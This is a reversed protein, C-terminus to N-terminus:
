RRLMCGSTPNNPTPNRASSATSNPGGNPPTRAPKPAPPTASGSTPPRPTATATSGPTSSSGPPPSGTTIATFPPAPWAPPPLEGNTVRGAPTIASPVPFGVEFDFVEPDLKLHHSFWPGAPTVGQSSLTRSLEQFAPGMVQAIDSRPITFRIVAAPQAKSQLITPEDIM